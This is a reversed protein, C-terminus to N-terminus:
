WQYFEEGTITNMYLSDAGWGAVDVRSAAYHEIYMLRGKTFGFEYWRGDKMDVDMTCIMDDAVANVSINTYSDPGFTAEVVHKMYAEYEKEGWHDYEIGLLNLAPDLSYLGSCTARVIYGTRAAIDMTVFRNSIHYYNERYGSKDLFYSIEGEKLNYDYQELTLHEAERRESARSNAASLFFRYMAEAQEPTMDGEAIHQLDGPEFSEPAVQKVFAEHHRIDSLFCVSEEMAAENPHVKIGHLGGDTYALTLYRGDSLAVAFTVQRIRGYSGGREYVGPKTQTFLLKQAVEGADFAADIQAKAHYAIVDAAVLCLDKEKLVCVYEKQENTMRLVNERYGAEDVYRIVTMGDESVQVGMGWDFVDVATKRAKAALEDDVPDGEKWSRKDDPVTDDIRPIVSAYRWEREVVQWQLEEAQTAPIATPAATAVPQPTAGIDGATRPTITAEAEAFATRVFTDQMQRGEFLRLGGWFVVGLALMAGLTALLVKNKMWFLKM